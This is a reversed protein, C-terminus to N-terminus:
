RPNQAAGAREKAHAVLAAFRPDKHLFNLDDEKEISLDTGADLGHDISKRLLSLAEDRHGQRALV